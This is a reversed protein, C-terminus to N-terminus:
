AAQVDAALGRHTGKCGRVAEDYEADIDETWVWKMRDVVRRHIEPVCKDFPLHEM